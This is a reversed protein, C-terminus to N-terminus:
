QIWLKTACQQQYSFAKIFGVVLKFVYEAYWITDHTQVGNKTTHWQDM